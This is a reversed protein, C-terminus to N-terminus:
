AKKGKKKDLEKLDAQALEKKFAVRNRDPGVGFAAAAKQAYDLADASSLTVAARKGDRAVTFWEAATNEDQM